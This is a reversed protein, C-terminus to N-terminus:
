GILQIKSFIKGDLNLFSIAQYSIPQYSGMEKPDM